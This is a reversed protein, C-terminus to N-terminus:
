VAEWSNNNSKFIYRRLKKEAILSIDPADFYLLKNKIQDALILYTDMDLIEDGVPVSDVITKKSPDAVRSLITHGEGDKWVGLIDHEFKVNYIIRRPAAATKLRLVNFETNDAFKNRTAYQEYKTGKISDQYMQSRKAQNELHYFIVTGNQKETKVENFEDYDYYSFFPNLITGANGLVVMKIDGTGARERAISDYIDMLETPENPLYDWMRKAQFEDYIIIKVKPIGSGRFKDSSSLAGMYGILIKKKDKKVAKNRIVIYFETLEAAAGEYDSYIEYEKKVDSGIEDVFKKFFADLMLRKRVASVQKITRRLFFFEYDAEIMSPMKKVDAVTQIAYNKLVTDLGKTISDLLFGYTKGINRNGVLFGTQVIESLILEVNLYGDEKQYPNEKSMSKVEKM